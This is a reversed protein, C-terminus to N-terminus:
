RRSGSAAYRDRDLRLLNRERMAPKTPRPSSDSLSALTMSRAASPTAWSSGRTAGTMGPMVTLTRTTLASPELFTIAVAGAWGCNGDRIEAPSSAHPQRFRQARLQHLQQGLHQGCVKAPVRRRDLRRVGVPAGGHVARSRGRPGDAIIPPGDPRDRAGVPPGFLCRRAARRRRSSRGV